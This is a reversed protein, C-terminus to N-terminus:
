SLTVREIIMYRALCCMNILSIWLVILWGILVQRALQQANYHLVYAQVIYAILYAM